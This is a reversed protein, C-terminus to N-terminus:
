RSVASNAPEELRSDIYLAEGGLERVIEALTGWLYHAYSPDIWMRCAEGMTGSERLIACHVGALSTYIVQDSRVNRVDLACSQAFVEYMRSGNLIFTAHERVSLYVGAVESKLERRLADAVDGELGCEIMCECTGTRVIWVDDSTRHAGFIEMPIDINRQSLWAFVQDGMLGIKPVNGLHTLILPADQMLRDSKDNTKLTM